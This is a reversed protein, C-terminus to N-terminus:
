RPRRYSLGLHAYVGAIGGIDKILAYLDGSLSLGLGLSWAPSFRFGMDLYPMDVYVGIVSSPLLNGEDNYKRKWKFGSMMPGASAGIGFIMRQSEGLRIRYLFGASVHGANASQGYNDKNGFRTYSGEMFFVNPVFFLTGYDKYTEWFTFHFSAGGGGGAGKLGVFGNGSLSFNMARSNDLIFDGADARQRVIRPQEPQPQPRAEQVAPPLPQVQAAEQAQAMAAQRAQEEAAAGAPNLTYGRAYLINDSIYPRQNVKTIEITEVAIDKAVTEIPLPKDINKLFAETFPSNRSRPDGDAATAGAATSFMIFTDQIVPAASLGRSLNRSEAPLPNNRCADLVVVNVKNRAGELGRLLETLSYATRRVQSIRDAQIDVPLLYNEGDVQVGHGAYWFFGENDRDLALRDTFSIIAQEMQDIGVNLKLEVKYGLKELAAAIDAADNEPTRLKEVKSYGSNGIVLAYRQPVAGASFVPLLFLAALFVGYM